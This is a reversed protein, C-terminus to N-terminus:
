VRSDFLKVLLKFLDLCVTAYGGVILRSETFHPAHAVVIRGSMLKESTCLKERYHDDMRGKLCDRDVALAFSLNDIAIQVFVVGEAHKHEGLRM